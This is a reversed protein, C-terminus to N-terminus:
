FSRFIKELHEPPKNHLRVYDWDVEYFGSTDRPTLNCAAYPGIIETLSEWQPVLFKEREVWETRVSVAGCGDHPAIRCLYPDGIIEDIVDFLEKWSRAFATGCVDPRDKYHVYVMIM